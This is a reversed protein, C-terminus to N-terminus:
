RMKSPSEKKWGFSCSERAGLEAFLFATARGIGESGGTIAAVKGKLSLDM